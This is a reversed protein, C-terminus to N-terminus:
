TLNDLNKIFANAKILDEPTDIALSDYNCLSVYISFDNELWRLQELKESRELPSPSLMILQKLINYKYAYIGVHKYYNVSQNEDPTRNFPILFRSFYLAKYHNSFVVKVVNPNRIDSKGDLKKVLTAIEIGPDRFKEILINIEQPRIFPEDGQINVIIDDDLLNIKAAAEGCRDTGSPHTQSTMVVKGGFDLVAKEIRCDDTAIFVDDLRSEKCRNYVHQIMPIEGIMALPKGPFRTSAYRAPIIGTFKM